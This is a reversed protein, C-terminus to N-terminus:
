EREVVEYNSTPSKVENLIVVERILFEDSSRPTM